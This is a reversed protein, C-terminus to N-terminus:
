ESAAAAAAPEDQVNDEREDEEEDAGDDAEGRAVLEAEEGLLLGPPLGRLDCERLV